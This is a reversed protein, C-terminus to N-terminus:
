AGSALTLLIPNVGAPRVEFLVQRPGREPAPIEVAAATAGYETVAVARMETRRVKLRQYIGTAERRM